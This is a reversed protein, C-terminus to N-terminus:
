QQHELLERCSGGRLMGCGGHVIERLGFDSLYQMRDIDNGQCPRRDLAVISTLDNVGVGLRGMSCPM